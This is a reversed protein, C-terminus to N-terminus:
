LPENKSASQNEQALLRNLLAREEAESQIEGDIRAFRLRELIMKYRPGPRLGMKKLDNGDIAASQKRWIKVFTEITQQATPENMLVLWAIQLATPPINELLQTMQSPRISPDALQAANEILRVNATASHVLARALALRECVSQVDDSAMGIMIIHWYLRTLDQAATQWPVTQERCRQFLEPLQPSVRWAPHINELIGLTQLKLIAQEPRPENLILAIENQLREGSIRKLMPRADQMWQATRPEIRFDLRRSFRVARLIRTPDDVFSRPHLVRIWNRNLDTIGGYFNLIRWMEAPPSLQLALTNMTFDRRRLDRKIDGPYVTPLAAPQEYVESRAAAFDIHHPLEDLPLAMSGAVASDLIWKATGFPAHSHLAGGFTHKLQSAFAIADGELVFDIDLNVRGLLLDRVLGGVLYIPIDRQQAQEAIINIFDAPSKGLISFITEATVKM